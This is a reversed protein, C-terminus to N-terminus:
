AAAELALFTELLRVLEGPKTEIERARRLATTRAEQETAGFGNILDSANARSHAASAGPGLYSITWGWGRPAAFSGIFEVTVLLHTTVATAKWNLWQPGDEVKTESRKM